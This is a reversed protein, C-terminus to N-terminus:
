DDGLINPFLRPTKRYPAAFTGAPLELWRDLDEATDRRIPSGLDKSAPLMDPGWRLVDRRVQFMRIAEPSPSREESPPREIKAPVTEKPLEPAPPSVPVLIRVEVIREREIVTPHEPSFLFGALVASLGAFSIACSPWVWAFRSAAIARGAEFLLRDRNIATAAPALSRLADALPDFEPPTNLPETSESM